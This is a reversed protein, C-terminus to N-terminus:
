EFVARFREFEEMKRCYLFHDPLQQVWKADLLGNTIRVTLLQNSTLPLVKEIRLVM